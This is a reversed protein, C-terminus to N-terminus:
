VRREGANQQESNRKREKKEAKQVNMRSEQLDVRQM